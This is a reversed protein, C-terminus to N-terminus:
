VLFGNGLGLGCLTVSHKRLTKYMYNKCKPRQDIKKKSSIKKTPPRVEKKQLYIDIQEKIM